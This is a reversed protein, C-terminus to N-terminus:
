GKISGIMVGKVFYRQVFPYLILVPLSGVVIVAYKILEMANKMEELRDDGMGDLMDMPMNALLLIDRLVLQLTYKSADNLYLLARMYGNWHDIGHFLVMGAIVPKALPLAVRFFFRIDSCGDISAAELLDEPINSHFYTRVIVMNYASFAFPLILALRSNILGLDRVLMYNPIMGGSFFMTFAFYLVFGAKGPLDRRSLPYAALVLLVINVMTGFVMYIASNMYGNMLLQNRIVAKYGDLTFEVPWLFVQRTIVAYASSFSCSVVYVLPYLVILLFLTLLTFNVAHFSKDQALARIARPRRSKAIM